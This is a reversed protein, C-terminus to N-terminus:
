GETESTEVRTSSNALDRELADILSKRMQAITDATVPGLFGAVEPPIHAAPDGGMQFVYHDFRARWAARQNAPLSGLSLMGHLMADWPSGVDDRASNWWYNALMNFPELAEVHHYWGYPIFIADGPELEATEATELAAAFRPYRDFDPATLHVMSVPTGAPTFHLPGLYLNAIQEPPFLTFRRRGAVVVALNDHEDNHTAIKAANGIWLRPTAPAPVYPMPHSSDFAPFVQAAVVAQATITFPRDSAAQEQLMALFVRLSTRALVFNLARGDPTYHFRGDNEPDTRLVGIPTDTAHTSLMAMCRDAGQRAAAVLPWDAALGRLVAPRAAPAVVDAFENPTTAELSPIERM